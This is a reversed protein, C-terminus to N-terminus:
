KIAITKLLLQKRTGELITNMKMVVKMLFKMVSSYIVLQTSM